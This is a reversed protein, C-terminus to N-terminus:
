CQFMIKNEPINLSLLKDRIKKEYTKSTIFICEFDDNRLEHIPKIQTHNNLITNDDFIQSHKDAFFNKLFRSQGNNPVLAIKQLHSYKRKLENPNNNGISNKYRGQIPYIIQNCLKYKQIITIASQDFPYEFVERKELPQDDIHNKHEICYCVKCGNEEYFDHYFTPSISYFGHNPSNVPNSHCIYGDKKLMNLINSMAQAINFVHELTGNDIIVDYILHHKTNVPYNLDVIIEQGQWATCDMVTLECNLEKFFSYAEYVSNILDDLKYLAAVEISDHRIRINDIQKINISQSLEKKPIIIDPYGLCLVKCTQNQELIKDTCKKINNFFAYDLAM